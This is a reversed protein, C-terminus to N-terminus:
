PRKSLFSVQSDVLRGWQPLGESFFGCRYVQFLDKEAKSRASNGAHDTLFSAVGQENSYSACSLLRKRPKCSMYTTVFTHLNFQTPSIIIITKVFVEPLQVFQSTYFVPVHNEEECVCLYMNLLWVILVLIYSHQLWTRAQTTQIICNGRTATVESLSNRPNHLLNKYCMKIQRVM